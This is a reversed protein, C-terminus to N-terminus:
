LAGRRHLHAFCKQRKPIRCLLSLVGPFRHLHLPGTEVDVRTEGCRDDGSPHKALRITSDRRPDARHRLAASCHATSSHVCPRPLGCSRSATGWYSTISPHSCSHHYHGCQRHVHLASKSRFEDLCCVGTLAAITIERAHSGRIPRHVAHKCRDLYTLLNPTDGSTPNVCYDASWSFYEGDALVNEWQKPDRVPPVPM